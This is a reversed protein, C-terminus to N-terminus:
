EQDKINRESVNYSVIKIGLPNVLENDKNVMYAKDITFKMNAVFNRVRFYSDKKDITRFEVQYIDDQVKIDSIIEVDRHIDEMSRIMEAFQGKFSNWVEDSSMAKVSQARLRETLDDKLNRDYVYKRLAKRLFLLKQDTSLHASPLVRYYVDSSNLFEVYRYETQKLPLMYAIAVSLVSIIFILVLTLVQWIRVSEALRMHFLGTPPSLQKDNM